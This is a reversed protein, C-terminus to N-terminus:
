PPTVSSGAAALMGPITQMTLLDFTGRWEGEDLLPAQLAVPEIALKDRMMEMTRGFDAGMRDMKNVFAVAPLSFRSAQRWVQGCGDSSLLLWLFYRKARPKWERWLTSYLARVM